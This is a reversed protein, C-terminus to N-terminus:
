VRSTLLLLPVAASTRCCLHLLLPAAASTCCYLSLLLPVSTLILLNAAASTGQVGSGPGRPRKGLGGPLKWCGQYMAMPSIREQVMLVEGKGNLVVGGVGIQTFSYSPLPSPKDVPLWRTMLVYEPKAHHFEFKHEAAAGALGACALPIKLWVGSKDASRWQEIHQGLIRSFDRPQCGASTPLVEAEIGGYRDAKFSLLDGIAIADPEGIFIAGEAVGKAAAEEVCQQLLDLAAKAFSWMNPEREAHGARVLICREIPGSVCIASFGHEIDNFKFTPGCAGSESVAWTSGVAARMKRAVNLTWVKKSEIYSDGDRPTPGASMDQGLLVSAKASHYTVAGVTTVASAGPVCQLGAQILGATTAEFISVTQQSSKLAAVAGEALKPLPGGASMDPAAVELFDVPQTISRFPEDIVVM